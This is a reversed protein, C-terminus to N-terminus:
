LIIEKDGEMEGWNIEINAKFSHNNLKKIEEWQAIRASRDYKQAAMTDDHRIHHHHVNVIWSVEYSRLGYNLFRQYMSLMWYAYDRWQENFGGLELMTNRPLSYMVTETEKKERTATTTPKSIAFLLKPNDRWNVKQTLDNKLDGQMIRPLVDCFINKERTHPRYLAEVADFTTLRDEMTLGIIEGKSQKIGVNWAHVPCKYAIRGDYTFYRLNFDPYKVKCIKVVEFGDNNGDMVLVEYDNKPFTQNAWIHLTKELIVPQKYYSLIMSFKM